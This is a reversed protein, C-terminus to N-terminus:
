WNGHTLNVLADHIKQRGAETEVLSIPTAYQLAPVPTGLWRLGSEPGFVEKAAAVIDNIDNLALKDLISATGRKGRVAAAVIKGIDDPAPKDLISATDRKGRAAAAAIEEKSRRQEDLTKELDEFAELFKGIEEPAAEAVKFTRMKQLAQRFEKLQKGPIRKASKMGESSVRAVKQAPISVSKRSEPSVRGPKSLSAAEEIKENRENAM